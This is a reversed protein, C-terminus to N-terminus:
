PRFWRYVNYLQSAELLKYYRSNKVREGITARYRVVGLRAAFYLPIFLAIWVVLSGLVVTNNFNTLALGPINDWATWMPRLSATDVLLIRGVRDFIPDFMFGVPVFVAWAFMGAAFSVNLVALLLIVVANHVNAIPTLGLAAGLAVGFAIQAPSGDSHLTKVLSRLLKLLTLM